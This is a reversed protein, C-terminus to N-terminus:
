RRTYFPEKPSKIIMGYVMTVKPWCFALDVLKPPQFPLIVGIWPLAIEGDAEKPMTHVRIMLIGFSGM